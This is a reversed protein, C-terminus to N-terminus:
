MDSTFIQEIRDCSKTLLVVISGILNTLALLEAENAYAAIFINMAETYDHKISLQM